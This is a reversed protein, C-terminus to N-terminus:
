GDNEISRTMQKEKDGKKRKKNYNKHEKLLEARSQLVVVVFVLLGTFINIWWVMLSFRGLLLEIVAYLLVGCITGTFKGRGGTLLTGGLVVAAIATLEWGIGATTQASSLRSTLMMGALGSFLGSISYVIMKVKRPNFGMMKAAEENGGVAFVSRGFRTYKSVIICIISVIAFIWVLNPVGFIAGQGINAFSEDIKVLGIPEEKSIILSTGRAGMMMALTAIFPPVNLRTISLGNIAGLATGALLPILIPVWGPYTQLLAASFGAVAAIAGVSLDIGGTMIVFTQGLAVVGVISFGMVTKLLVDKNWLEPFIILAVISVGILAVLAGQEICIKKITSVIKNTDNMM